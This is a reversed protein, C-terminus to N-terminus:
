ALTGGFSMEFVQRIAAQEAEAEQALHPQAAKVAELFDWAAQYAPQEYRRMVSSRSLVGSWFSVTKQLPHQRRLHFHEHVLTQALSLAGAQAAEPGLTITGLLGAQARDELALNVRVRNQSVLQALDVGLDAYGRTARILRLAEPLAAPMMAM